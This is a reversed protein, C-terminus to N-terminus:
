LWYCLLCLGMFVVFVMGGEYVVVGFLLLVWGMIVFLVVILIIGFVFLLNFCGICNVDKVFCVVGVFKSM